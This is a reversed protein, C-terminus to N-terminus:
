QLLTLVSQPSQNALKLVLSASQVLIQSRTLNSTEAAFDTDRVISEAAAVNEYQVNLSEGVTELTNRVFSGLRARLTSVQSIASRVIRQASFFNKTSMANAESTGLTYLYGTAGDGLTQTTMSGIGLSVMSNLDLQPSITFRAGGGTIGFTANGGSTVKGYAATLMIDADFVTTRAGIKLGQGTIAQGNVNAVVDAGFDEGTGAVTFAGSGTLTRVKVFQDSGYEISQIRIINSLITASVGTIDRSQNIASKIGVLSASALNIRETGLNGTIEITRSSANLAGGTYSVIALSAASRVSVVVSRTGGEPIRVSNMQLDAIKTTDVSSTTYALDGSLLKRGQLESANAIRNISNLIQDIEQQNAALEESSIGTENSSSDVLKELDTLLSNIESLGSEAVSVVNSARAVNTQAAQIGSMEARMRESAILGAPDDKGSNIRLGTSLRQLSANLRNNQTTLIRQAIISPVNTNIRSMAQAEV